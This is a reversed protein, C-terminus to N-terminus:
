SRGSMLALRETEDPVLNYHNTPIFVAGGVQYLKIRVTTQSSHEATLYPAPNSPLNYPYDVTINQGAAAVKLEEIITYPDGSVSNNYIETPPTITNGQLDTVELTWPVLPSFTLTSYHIEGQYIRESQIAKKLNIKRPPNGDEAWYQLTGDVIEISHILNTESFNLYAGQSVLDIGEGPAYRFISHYTSLGKDCIFFVVVDSRKDERAGICVYTGEIPLYANDILLNGLINEYISYSSGRGGVINLGEILDINNIERPDINTNVGGIFTNISKKRM